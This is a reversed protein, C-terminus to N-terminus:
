ENSDYSDVNNSSTQNLKNDLQVRGLGKRFKTVDEHVTDTGYKKRCWKEVM